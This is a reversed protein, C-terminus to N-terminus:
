QKGAYQLAKQVAEEFLERGVAGRVMLDNVLFHPTGSIGLSDAERSDFDLRQQVAQGGAENKLKKFDYGLGEATKRLFDEGEREYQEAGNFLADHFAWGGAPDLFFAATAFKAATMSVPDDKPLAKFTVRVRGDYKKLLGTIVFEAQRCYPCTFDSYEVVTVPADAKGRFARDDLKVVKPQKADQEWQSLLAKRKRLMNGQQAIELVIESNDKLIDLVLEPHERLERRVAERVATNDPASQAGPAPACSLLAILVGPILRSLYLRKKLLLFNM